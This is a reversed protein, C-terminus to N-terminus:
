ALHRLFVMLTWSGHWSKVDIRNGQLDILDAQPLGEGIRNKTM